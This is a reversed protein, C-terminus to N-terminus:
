RILDAGPVAYVTVGEGRYVVELAAEFKREVLPQYSARELPGVFIYKIGYKEIIARAEEWSRATYLTAIDQRRTGLPDANGRWQVEHFEWGLVTPLGTHTAVRAYETYSGGVAEAVTGEELNMRMWDIAAFEAPKLERLFAIGDLTRGSAPRLGETKTATALIPYTLGLLLPLFALVRLAAFGSVQKPWIEITVYAAAIGWLIWGAYYFKFVTNMRTLFLDRLYFYEPGIVLLSGLAILFLAFVGADQVGGKGVSSEKRARHILLMLSAALLLGLSIATPITQLRRGLLEGIGSRINDVGLGTMVQDLLFPQDGLILWAVGAFLWGTVMLALPILLALWLTRSRDSGPLEARWRMWLWVAVPVLLPGFMVLLHQWQTPYFLNPLIGSAQSAFTPYWPIFLLVGAVLLAVGALLSRGVLQTFPRSRERWGVVAVLLGLYIPFDWTNLFALAGFIWAASWFEARSMGIPLLGRLADWLLLAAGGALLLGIATGLTTRLADVISVGAVVSWAFAVLGGIVALWGAFQLWSGRETLWARISGGEEGLSARGLYVHLAAGIALLVFPLVLVHPHNDALLFSFFPFEDIVENDFGAMNVDRVVRSARWWWLYRTPIWSPPGTPAVVLDKINLWSWFGSTFEGQANRVWFLHRAHLVDLFAELNGVIVVYLPGLLSAFISRGESRTSLLNFLIAYTGVVTLAFWLSNTLNFAVGSPTATLMTLMGQMVYGFYYYSIAYGSLWPDKPPFQESTLISNLFALEMPKETAEIRPNNARVFTWLLFALLFLIEVMLIYRSNARLWTKLEQWRGRISWLSVGLLVLLATLGGGLTNPILRFSAGLWLIYGSFLLGAARSLGFGREPLRHLFRWVLPFAAWGILSSALWWGATSIM